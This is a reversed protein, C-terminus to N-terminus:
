KQNKVPCKNKVISLQVHQIGTQSRTGPREFTPSPNKEFDEINRISKNLIDNPEVWKNTLENDIIEVKDGESKGRKLNDERKIANDEFSESRTGTKIKNKNVLTEEKDSLEERKKNNM